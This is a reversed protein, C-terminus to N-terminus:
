FTLTLTFIINAAIIELKRSSTEKQTPDHITGSMHVEQYSSYEQKESNMFFFRCVRWAPFAWQNELVCLMKSLM